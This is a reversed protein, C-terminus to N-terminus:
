RKGRISWKGHMEKIDRALHVIDLAIVQALFIAGMGLAVASIIWAEDDGFQWSFIMSTGELLFVVAIVAILIGSFFVRGFARGPATHYGEGVSLRALANGLAPLCSIVSGCTLLLFMWSKYFAAAEDPRALALPVVLMADFVLALALSIHSGPILGLSYRKLDIGKKDLLWSIGHCALLCGTSLISVFVLPFWYGAAYRHRQFNMSFLLVPVISLITGAWGALRTSVDVIKPTPPESKPCEISTNGARMSTRSLLRYFRYIGLALWTIILPFLYMTWGCYTALFLGLGGLGTGAGIAISHHMAIGRVGNDSGPSSFVVAHVGLCIAVGIIASQIWGGTLTVLTDGMWFFLTSPMITAPWALLVSSQLLAGISLCWADGNATFRSDRWKFWVLTVVIPLLVWCVVIGVYDSVGPSKLSRQMTLAQPILIGIAAALQAGALRPSRTPNNSSADM